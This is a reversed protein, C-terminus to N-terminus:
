PSPASLRPAHQRPGQIKKVKAKPAPLKLLRGETGYPNDTLPLSTGSGDLEPVGLGMSVKTLQRASRSARALM